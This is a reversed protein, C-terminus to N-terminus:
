MLSNSLVKDLIMQFSFAIPKERSQFLNGYLRYLYM